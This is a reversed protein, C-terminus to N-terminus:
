PILQRQPLKAKFCNVVIVFDGDTNKKFMIFLLLLFKIKVGDFRPSIDREYM